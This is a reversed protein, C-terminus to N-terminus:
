SLIKEMLNKVKLFSVSNEDLKLIPINQIDYDRVTKDEPITEILNLNEETILKKLQHPLKEGEVRNVVLYIKKVDLHLKKILDELKKSTKIGKVSADSILLLVDLDGNTRRSIHEMGAENDIVTYKYNKVLKELYNRIVTNPYCYCGPGEGQGMVLLDFGKEELIIESIKSELFSEKTIGIPLNEKNKLFNDLIRGITNEPIVGLADGLNANPDADVALVPKLNNQILYKIILAAITTKGTGGKGSVAIKM